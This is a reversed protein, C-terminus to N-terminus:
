WPFCCCIRIQPLLSILLLKQELTEPGLKIRWKTGDTSFAYNARPIFCGVSMENVKRRCPTESLFPFFFFVKSSHNGTVVQGTQNPCKQNPFHLYLGSFFFFAEGGKICFYFPKLVTLGLWQGTFNGCCWTSSILVSAQHLWAGPFQRGPEWLRPRPQLRAM